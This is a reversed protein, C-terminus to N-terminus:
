LAMLLDALLLKVNPNRPLQQKSWTVKKLTEHWRRLEKGNGKEAAITLAAYSVRELSYMLLPLADRQKAYEEIKVLRQYPPAQLISKATTIGAVIEHSEDKELLAMMLGPQGDSMHYAREIAGSPYGKSSFYEVAEEKAPARVTIKQVRSYITPLLSHEGEATMLIITDAPPEELTKLFANQAEHTLQHADEILLARRITREGTTKLRLFEHIRRIDDISIVGKQPTVCLYYPYREIKDPKVELFTALLRRALTGKGAGRLGTLLVAHTPRAILQRIAASTTSHTLLEEFM